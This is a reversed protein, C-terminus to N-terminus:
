NKKKLIEKWSEPMEVSIGKSYDFCVMVTKAKAVTTQKGDKTTYFRYSFDFSKGGIRDCWIEIELYDGLLVPIIYDIETRALIVGLTKWNLGSFNMGDFYHMRSLELYTLYVANNVHGFLDLDRFRVEIQKINYNM